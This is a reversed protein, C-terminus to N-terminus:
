CRSRGRPLNAPPAITTAGAGATQRPSTSIFGHERIGPRAEPGAMPTRQAGVTVDPERMGM